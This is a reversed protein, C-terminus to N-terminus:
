ALILSSKKSLKLDRTINPRTLNYTPVSREFGSGDKSLSYGNVPRYPTLGRFRLDLNLIIKVSLYLCPM